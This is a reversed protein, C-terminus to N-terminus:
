YINTWINSKCYATFGPDNQQSLSFLCPIPSNKLDIIKKKKRVAAHQQYSHFMLRTCIDLKSALFVVLDGMLSDFWHPCATSTTSPGSSDAFIKTPNIQICYLIHLVWYKHITHLLLIKSKNLRSIFGYNYPQPHSQNLKASLM